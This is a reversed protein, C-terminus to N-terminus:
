IWKTEMSNSNFFPRSWDHSFQPVHAEHPECYKKFPVDLKM